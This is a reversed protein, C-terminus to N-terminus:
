KSFIYNYLEYLTEVKKRIYRIHNTRLWLINTLRSIANQAQKLEIKDGMLKSILFWGKLLDKGYEKKRWEALEKGYKQLLIGTFEDFVVKERGYKKFIEFFKKPDEVLMNELTNIIQERIAADADDLFSLMSEIEKINDM